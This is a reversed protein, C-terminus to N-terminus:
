RSIYFRLNLTGASYGLEYQRDSYSGNLDLLVEEYATDTAAATTFYFASGSQTATYPDFGTPAKPIFTTEHGDIMYAPDSQCQLSSVATDSAPTGDTQTPFANSLAKCQLVAESITGFHSQLTTQMQKNAFFSFNTYSYFLAAMVGALAIAVTLELLSFAPKM